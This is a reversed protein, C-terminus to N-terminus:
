SHKNKLNDALMPFIEIVYFQLLPVLRPILSIGSFGAFRAPLGKNEISKM